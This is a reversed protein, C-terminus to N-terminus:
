PTTSADFKFERLWEGLEAGSQTRLDMADAQALVRVKWPALSRGDGAKAAASGEIAAVFRRIEDSRRAGLVARLLLRQRRLLLTRAQAKRRKRERRASEEAARIARQRDQLAMEFRWKLGDKFARECRSLLLTTMTRIVAKGDKGFVPAPAVVVLPIMSATSGSSM